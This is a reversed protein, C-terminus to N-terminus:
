SVAGGKTEFPVECVSSSVVVIRERLDSVILYRSLMSHRRASLQLRIAVFVCDTDCVTSTDRVESPQTLNFLYM